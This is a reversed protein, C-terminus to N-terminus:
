PFVLKFYLQNKDFSTLQDHFFEVKSVDENQRLLYFARPIKIILLQRDM